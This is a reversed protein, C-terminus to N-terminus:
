PLVEEPSDVVEWADEFGALAFARGVLPGPRVVVLRRGADRAHAGAAALLGMGTSDLFSLRSLDLVLLAPEQAEIRLMEVRAQEVGQVDLDGRMRAIVGGEFSESTIEFNLVAAIM